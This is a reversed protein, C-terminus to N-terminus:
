STVKALQRLRRHVHRRVTKQLCKVKLAAHCQEANFTRVMQIREDASIVVCPEGRLNTVDSQFPNM